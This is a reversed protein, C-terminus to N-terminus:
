GVIGFLKGPNGAFEEPHPDFTSISVEYERTSAFANPNFVFPPIEIRLVLLFKLIPSAPESAGKKTIAAVASVNLMGLPVKDAASSAYETCDPTGTAM